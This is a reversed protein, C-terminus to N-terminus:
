CDCECGAAGEVVGVIFDWIFPVKGGNVDQLEEENLSKM